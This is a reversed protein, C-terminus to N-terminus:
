ICLLQLRRPKSRLSARESTRPWTTRMVGVFSTSINLRPDEMFRKEAATTRIRPSSAPTSLQHQHSLQEQEHRGLGGRRRLTFAHRRWARVVFRLSRKRVGAWARWIPRVLLFVCPARRRVMMTLTSSDSSSAFGVGQLRGGDINKLEQSWINPPRIRRGGRHLYQLASPVCRESRATYFAARQSPSRFNHPDLEPSAASRVPPEAVRPRPRCVPLWIWRPARLFRPATTQDGDVLTPCRLVARVQHRRRFHGRPEPKEFGVLRPRLNRSAAIANSATRDHGSLPLTRPKVSGGPAAKM